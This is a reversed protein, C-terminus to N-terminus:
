GGVPPALPQMGILMSRGGRDRVLASGQWANYIGGDLLSVAIEGRLREVPEDIYGFWEPHEVDPIRAVVELARDDTGLQVRGEYEVRTGM